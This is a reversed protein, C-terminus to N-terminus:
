VAKAWSEVITRIRKDLQSLGMTLWQRETNEVTGFHDYVWRRSKLYPIKNREIYNSIYMRWLISAYLESKYGCKIRLWNQGKEPMHLTFLAPWIPSILNHLNAKSEYEIPIGFKKLYPLVFGNYDAYIEGNKETLRGTALVGAMFSISGRDHKLYFAPVDHWKYHAESKGNTKGYFPTTSLIEFINRGTTWRFSPFFRKNWRIKGCTSLGHIFDGNWIPDDIEMFEHIYWKIHKTRVKEMASFISPPYDDYTWIQDFRDQTMGERGYFLAIESLVSCCLFPSVKKRSTILIM